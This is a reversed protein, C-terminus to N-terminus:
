QFNHWRARPWYICRAVGLIAKGDIAGFMRSDKSRMSNDGLFFYDNPGLTMAGRPMSISRGLRGFDEARRYYVDRWLAIRSIAISCRDAVVAARCPTAPPSFDKKVTAIDQPSVGLSAANVGDQDVSACGDRFAFTLRTPGGLPRHLKARVTDNPGPMSGGDATAKSKSLSVEGGVAIEATVRQGSFEWEFGFHGAGSFKTVFCDVKVDGTLIPQEDPPEPLGNYVLQPPEPLGNYALQDSIRGAFSLASRENQAACSWGGESQKWPSPSRESKWRPTGPGVHKPIYDTDHVLIWLDALGAAPKRLRLGNIFIDGGFIEIREGPLGVLRKVFAQRPPEPNRHAVLDWRKPRGIKNVLFRDGPVIKADGPVDYPERCNPCATPIPHASPGSGMARDSESVAYRFKCNKCVIDSHAGYITPASSGTPMVFAECVWQRAGLALPFAMAIGVAGIILLLLLSRWLSSRLIRMCLYCAGAIQLIAVFLDFHTSALRGNLKENLFYYAASLVGNFTILVAVTALARSFTVNAVKLWRSAPWLVLSQILLQSVILVFFAIGIILWFGM